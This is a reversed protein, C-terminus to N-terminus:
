RKKKRKASTKGKGKEDNKFLRGLILGVVVWLPVGLILKRTLLGEGSLLPILVITIVYMITGWFLGWKVWKKM